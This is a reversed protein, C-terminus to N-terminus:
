RSSSGVLPSIMRRCSPPSARSVGPVAANTLKAAGKWHRWLSAMSANMKVIGARSTSPRSLVLDGTALPRSRM